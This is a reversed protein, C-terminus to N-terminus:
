DSETSCFLSLDNPTDRARVLMTEERSEGKLGIPEMLIPGLRFFRPGTREALRLCTSHRATVADGVGGWRPDRSSGIYAM